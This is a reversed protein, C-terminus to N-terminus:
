RIRITIAGVRPGHVADKLRRMGRDIWSLVLEGRGVISNVLSGDGPLALQSPCWSCGGGSVSAWSRVGDVDRGGFGRAGCRSRPLMAAGVLPSLGGVEVEVVLGVVPSGSGHVSAVRLLNLEYAGGKGRVL